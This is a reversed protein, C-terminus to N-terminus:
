ETIDGYRDPFYVGNLQQGVAFGREYEGFGPGRNMKSNPADTGHEVGNLFIVPVGFKENLFDEAFRLHRTDSWTSTLVSYNNADFGKSVALAVVPCGCELDGATITEPKFSQGYLPCLGTKRYAEVFDEKTPEWAM